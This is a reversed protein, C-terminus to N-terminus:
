VPGDIVLVALVVILSVLVAVVVVVLVLGLRSRPGPRPGGLAHPVAPFPRARAVAAAPALSHTLTTAMSRSRLAAHTRQQLSFLRPTRASAPGPLQFLLMAPPAPRNPSPPPSSAHLWTHHRGCAVALRPPLRPPRGPLRPRGGRHARLPVGSWRCRGHKRRQQLPRQGGGGGLPWGGCLSLLLFLHSPTPTRVGPPHVRGRLGLM